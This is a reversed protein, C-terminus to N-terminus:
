EQGALGTVPHDAATASAELQRSIHSILPQVKWRAYLAHFRGRRRYNGVHCLAFYLQVWRLAADIAPYGYGALFAAEAARCRAATRPAALRHEALWVHNLFPAIDYAPAGMSSWHIDLGVCERESLLVNAPKFDGHLRVLEHRRGELEGATAALLECAARTGAERRLVTSYTQRLEDLKGDTDLSGPRRAGVGHLKRLWLGARHFASQLVDPRMRHARHLLDGGPFFRTVLIGHGVAEFWAIPVLVACGNGRPYVQNLKQLIEYEGRLTGEGGVAPEPDRGVKAVIREGCSRCRFYSITSNIRSAARGNRAWAGTAHCGPCALRACLLATVDPANAM